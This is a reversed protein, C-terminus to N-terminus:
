GRVHHLRPLLSLDGDREVEFSHDREVVPHLHDGEVVPQADPLDGEGVVSGVRESAATVVLVDPQRGKPAARELLHVPM